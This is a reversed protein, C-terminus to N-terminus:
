KTQKANRAAQINAQIAHVTASAEDRKVTASSVASQAATLQENAQDLETQRSAALARADALDAELAAMLDRFAIESEWREVDRTAQAVEALAPEAVKRAADVIAALKQSQSQLEAVRQALARLERRAADLRSNTEKLTSDAAGITATLEDSKVQLETVNTEMAKLKEALQRQADSLTTDTPAKGVAETLHRLAEAVLPQAEQLQALAAAVKSREAENATRSDSVQKIEKALADINQQLTAAEQQAATHASEAPAREAEAKRVADTLPTAALTKEQLRQEAAALYDELTPPKTARMAADGYALLHAMPPFPLLYCPELVIRPRHPANDEARLSASVCLAAVVCLPFRQLRAFQPLIHM